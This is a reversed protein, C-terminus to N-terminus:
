EMAPVVVLRVVGFADFTLASIPVCPEPGVANLPLLPGCGRRAQTSGFSRLCRAGIAGDVCLGLVRRGTSVGSGLGPFSQARAPGNAPRPRAPGPRLGAAPARLREHEVPFAGRRRHQSRVCKGPLAQELSAFDSELIVFSAIPHSCVGRLTLWCPGAPHALHVGPLPSSM